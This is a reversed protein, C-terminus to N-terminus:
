RSSKLSSNRSVFVEYVEGQTSAPCQSLAVIMIETEPALSNHRNAIQSRVLERSSSALVVKIKM